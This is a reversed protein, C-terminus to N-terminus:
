PASVKPPTPVAPPTPAAPGSYVDAVAPQPQPVPAPQAAVAPQRPPTVSAAAVPVAASAPKVAGTRVKAQPTPDPRPVRGASSRRSAPKNNRVDSRVAPDPTRNDRGVFASPRLGYRAWASPHMLGTFHWGQQLDQRLTEGALRGEGATPSTDVLGAVPQPDVPQSFPSAEAAAGVPLMTCLSTSLLAPGLMRRCVLRFM